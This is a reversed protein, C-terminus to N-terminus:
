NATRSRSVPLAGAVCLRSLDADHQHPRRGCPMNGCGGLERSVVSAVRRGEVRFSAVEGTPKGDFMALESASYVYHHEHSFALWAVKSVKAAVGKATLEGTVPNWDFALIGDQGGSGVFVRRHRTGTATPAAALQSGTATVVTAASATMLFDRRNLKKMACFNDGISRAIRWHTSECLRM